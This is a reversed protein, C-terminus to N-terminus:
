ARPRGPSTLCVAALADAGVVERGVRAALDQMLDGVLVVGQDIGEARLNDLATRTPAFLWRSLHDAVM